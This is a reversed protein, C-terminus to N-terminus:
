RGSVKEQPTYSMGQGTILVDLKNGSWLESDRPLGLRRPDRGDRGPGVGPIDALIYLRGGTKWVASNWIKDRSSLTATPNAASLPVTWLVGERVLGSRYEDNATWYERMAVADMSQARNGSLAVVDVTTVADGLARAANEDLSVTLNFKKYTTSKCGVGMALLGALLATAVVRGTMGAKTM